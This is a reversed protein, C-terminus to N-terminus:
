YIGSAVEWPSLRLRVLVDQVSRGVSIDALLGLVKKSGASWGPRFAIRFNAFCIM